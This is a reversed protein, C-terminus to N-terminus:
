KPFLFSVDGLMGDKISGDNPVTVKVLYVLNSREDTTNINKPTFEAEPSIWTLVGEMKKLEGNPQDVSLTCKTGLKLASLQKETIYAKFTMISLDAIRLVPKGQAVPEYKKIYSNLVCGSMPSYIKCKYIADNIQRLQLYLADTQSLILRTSQSLTKKYAELDGELRRIQQLLSDKSLDDFTFAVREDFAAISDHLKQYKDPIATYQLLAAELHTQIQKKQLSLQTSDISALYDGKSIIQGETVRIDTVVGEALAYIMLDHAEFFGNATEEREATSCGTLAACAIIGIKRIIKM